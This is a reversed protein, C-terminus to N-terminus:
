PIRVMRITVDETAERFATWSLDAIIDTNEGGAVRAGATYKVAPFDMILIDGADDTFIIALSSTTFNLYKDMIAKTTFYQQLTGSVAVKGTGISIPGLTGVQLRSRLNNDLSMTFGTTAFTAQGDLVSTVNDIANMVSGTAAATPAGDGATATASTETKGLFGFSGNIIADPTVTLSMTSLVMGVFIAFENSLDTYEKEINFSRFTTGNNIEAGQQITVSDGIAETILTGGSVVIKGAAVSVIKFIGNNTPNTLFGSVKVWGNVVFAAFGSGSDNFSNDASAADITAIPGVTVPAATWVASMLLAELFEDYASYSLEFNIDGSVDLGTRIVDVVQRDNRIEESVTIGTIQALSEGTLRLATHTPNAPEIVGFTTEVIQTLAIQDSDSM